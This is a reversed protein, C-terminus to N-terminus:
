FLRSSLAFTRYRAPSCTSSPSLPSMVGLPHPHRCQLLICHDADAVLCSGHGRGRPCCHFNTRRQPSPHHSSRPHSGRHGEEHLRFPPWRAPSTSSYLPPPRSPRLGPSMTALWISFLPVRILPLTAILGLSSCLRSFRTIGYLFTYAASIPHNYQTLTPVFIYPFGGLFGLPPPQTLHQLESHRPATQSGPTAHPPFALCSPVV